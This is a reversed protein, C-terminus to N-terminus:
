RRGARQAAVLTRHGIVDATRYDTGNFTQHQEVIRTVQSGGGAGHWGGVYRREAARALHAPIIRGDSAPEFLEVGRENVRYLRGASVPGGDARAPITTQYTANAAGAGIANAQKELETQAKNLAAVLGAGGDIIAQAVEGGETAGKGIIQQIQTENLKLARLRNIQSGFTALGAVQQKLDALLGTGSLSQGFLDAINGPTQLSKSIQDAFQVAERQQALLAEVSRAHAENADRAADLKKSYIDEAKSLAASAKANATKAATVSKERRALETNARALAAARADERASKQAAVRADFTRLEKQSAGDKVLKARAARQDAATVKDTERWQARMAAIAKKEDTVSKLASTLNSKATSATTRASLYSSQATRFASTARQQAAQTGAFDIGELPNFPAGLQALLQEISILRGGVRFGGLAFKEVRMGFANAVQGLIKESRQRKSKALPIYAEGETEPEAWQVLGGVRPRAITAQDPLKGDAYSPIQDFVGRPYYGGDANVAHGGTATTTQKRTIIENRFTTLRVSVNKGHLSDIEAQAKRKQAILQAIEAELKARKTATLKPDALQRRAAAIKVDLDKKNAELKATRTVDPIAFMSAAFEEAAKRNLGLQVAQDVFRKRSAEAVAAAAVEGKGAKLVAETKRNAANAADLWAQKNARGAEYDINLSHGHKQVAASMGDIAAEFGISSGTLELNKQQLQSMTTILDQIDGDARRINAAVASYAGTTDEAAAKNAGHAATSGDMAEAEAQLSKVNKDLMPGIQGIPISAEGSSKGLGGWDDNLLDLAGHMASFTAQLPVLTGRIGGFTADVLSTGGTMEKFAGNVDNLTGVLKLLDSSLSGVGTVVDALAEPNERVSDALDILADSVGSLAERTAPGLTNLVAVFASATPEVTPLLEEIARGAEDVFEAVEPSMSKFAKAWAPEFAHVTREFVNSMDILTDEWPESILKMDDGLDSLTRSWARQVDENQAAFLLGMGALGGGVGTILGAAAAAGIAPMVTVFAAGLTATVAPGLVPTKLVGLFGSGFVTGAGRGGDTFLSKGDNTLWKRFSRGFSKGSEDGSKDFAEPIRRTRGESTKVVGDVAAEAKAMGAVFGDVDADLRVRVTRDVM